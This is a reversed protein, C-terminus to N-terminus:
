ALQATLPSNLCRSFAVSAITLILSPASKSSAKPTRKSSRTVPLTSFNQSVPVITWM